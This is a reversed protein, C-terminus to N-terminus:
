RLDPLFNDGATTNGAGEDCYDANGTGPCAGGGNNRAVNARYINEFSSNRLHLGFDANGVFVNRDVVHYGGQSIRLGVGAGSITNGLILNGEGQNISIGTISAGQVTNGNVQCADCSEVVIGNIAASVLNRRVHMGTGSISIGNDSTNEVILDEIVGRASNSSVGVGTRGGRLLLDRLIFQSSSTSLRIAAGGGVVTGNEIVTGAVGGSVLIVDAAFIDADGEIRFGNLDIHVNDATITLVPNSLSVIDRTLVYSGPMSITTPQWLLTAGDAAPAPSWGAVTILALIALWSKLSHNQQTM